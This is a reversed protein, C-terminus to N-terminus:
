SLYSKKRSAQSKRPCTTEKAQSVAADIDEIDADAFVTTLREVLQDKTLMTM